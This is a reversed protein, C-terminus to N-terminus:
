HPDNECAELCQAFVPLLNLCCSNKNHFFFTKLVVFNRWDPHMNNTASSGHHCPTCERYDSHGGWTGRYYVNVRPVTIDLTWLLSKAASCTSVFVFSFSQTLLVWLIECWDKKSIIIYKFFFSCMSNYSNYDLKVVYQPCPNNLSM